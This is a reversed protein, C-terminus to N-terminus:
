GITKYVNSVELESLAINSGKKRYIKKKKKQIYRSAYNQKM